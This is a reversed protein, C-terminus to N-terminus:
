KGTHPTASGTILEYNATDDALKWSLLRQILRKEDPGQSSVLITGALEQVQGNRRDRVTATVLYYPRGGDGHTPVPPFEFKPPKKKGFM